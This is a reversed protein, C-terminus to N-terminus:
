FSHFNINNKHIKAESAHHVHSCLLSLSKSVLIVRGVRDPETVRDTNGQTLLIIIVWYFSLALFIEFAIFSSFNGVKDLFFEGRWIATLYGTM